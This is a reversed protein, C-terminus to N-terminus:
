STGWWRLKLARSTDARIFARIRSQQVLPINITQSYGSLNTITGGQEVRVGSLPQGDTREVQISITTPTWDVPLATVDLMTEGNVTIATDSNAAGLNVTEEQCRGMNPFDIKAQEYQADWSALWPQFANMALPKLDACAARGMFHVFEGLNIQRAYHGMVKPFYQRTLQFYRSLPVGHGHDRWIPYFFDRFWATGTTGAPSEYNVSSMGTDYVIQAETSKGLSWYADYAIIGIYESDGWDAFIGLGGLSTFNTSDNHGWEVIHGMEHALYNKVGDPANAAFSWPATHSVDIWNQSIPQGYYPHGYAIWDGKHGRV